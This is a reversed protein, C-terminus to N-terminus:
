IFSVCRCEIQPKVQIITKLYLTVIKKSTQSMLNKTISSFFYLTSFQIFVLFFFITIWTSGLITFM